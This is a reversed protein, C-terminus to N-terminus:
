STHRHRHRAVAGLRTLARSEQGRGHADPFVTKFTPPLRGAFIRALERSLIEAYNKKDSQKIKSARDGASELAARIGDSM